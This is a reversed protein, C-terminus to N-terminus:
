LPVFTRLYQLEYEHSASYSTISKLSTLTVPESNLGKGATKRAIRNNGSGM